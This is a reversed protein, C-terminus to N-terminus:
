YSFDEKRRLMFGILGLGVLLMAYTEPEPVPSVSEVSNYSFNQYRLGAADTNSRFTLGAFNGLGSISYVEYGILGSFSATNVLNGSAGFLDVSVSGENGFGMTWTISDAWSDLLLSLPAANGPQSLLSNSGASVGPNWYAVDINGAPALTLPGSPAGVVDAGSVTQGAFTQAFSGGPAVISSGSVALELDIEVVAASASTMGLMLASVVSAIVYRTKIFNMKIGKSFFLMFFWGDM